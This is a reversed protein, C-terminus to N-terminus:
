RTSTRSLERASISPPSTPRRGPSTSRWTARHSAAITSPGPFAGWRSAAHREPVAHDPVPSPFRPEGEAVTEGVRDLEAVRRRPVRPLRGRVPLFVGCQLRAVSHVLAPAGGPRATLALYSIFRTGYLYSAAGVQFDVKTGEAELGVQDFIYSSDRVMTRFVMEDYAGLARGLGGAMWTEMFVAISEVYWRPAYWRPGTLYAYLMSLPQEAIPAVKGFMM